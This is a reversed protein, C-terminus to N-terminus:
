RWSGLGWTVLRLVAYIPLCVVLLSGLTAFWTVVEAQMTTMAGNFILESILTYLSQYM